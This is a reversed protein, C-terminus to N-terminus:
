PNYSKVLSSAAFSAGVVEKLYYNKFESSSICLNGILKLIKPANNEDKLLFIYNCSKLTYKHDNNCYNEKDKTAHMVCEKLVKVAQSRNDSLIAETDKNKPKVCKFPHKSHSNEHSM